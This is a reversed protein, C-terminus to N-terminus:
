SQELVAAESLAPQQLISSALQWAATVQQQTGTISVVITEGNGGAGIAAGGVLMAINAGSLMTANNLQPSLVDICQQLPVRPTVQLSMNLRQPDVPSTYGSQPVESLGGSHLGGQLADHVGSAIGIGSMGGSIPGSSSGAAAPLAGGPMVPSLVGSGVYQSPLSLTQALDLGAASSNDTHQMSLAQLDHQVQEAMLAGSAVPYCMAIPSPQQQQQQSADQQQQQMYTPQVVVFMPASGAPLVQQQQQQQQPQVFCLQQQQGPQQMYGQSQSAVWAQQYDLPQQQQQQQQTYTATPAESVVV